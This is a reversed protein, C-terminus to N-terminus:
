NKSSSVWDGVEYADFTSESVYIWGEEEGNKLDFRWSEPHTRPQPINMTCLGDKNYAFCQNVYYVYSPSYEKETIYGADIASCGALALAAVIVM